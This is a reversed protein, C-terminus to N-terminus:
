RDFWNSLFEIHNRIESASLTSILKLLGRMQAGISLHQQSLIIGSHSGGSGLIESHIRHFDRVNFTYIVRDHASSWQLHESDAKGMMGAKNATIVDINRSSLAQVLARSQSDEDLYLRITSL